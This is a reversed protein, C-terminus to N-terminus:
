RTTEGEVARLSSPAAREPLTVVNPVPSPSWATDVRTISLQPEPPDGATARKSGAVCELNAWLGAYSGGIALNCDWPDQWGYRDETFGVEAEDAIIWGSEPTSFTAVMWVTDPITLTPLPNSRLTYVYGDDPIGSWSFTGPIPTGGDGPCDTYLRVTVDFPGGGGGYVVLDLYALERGGTGVLTMDDAIQLGPGAFAYSTMPNIENSYAGLVTECTLTAHYTWPEAACAAGEFNTPAV